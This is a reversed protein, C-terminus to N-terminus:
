KMKVPKLLQKFMLVYEDYGVVETGETDVVAYRSCEGSATDVIVLTGADTQYYGDPNKDLVDGSKYCLSYKGDIKKVFYEAGDVDEYVFIDIWYLAVALAAILVAIVLIMAIIAVRQRRLSDRRKARAVASTGTDFDKKIESMNKEKQKNERM